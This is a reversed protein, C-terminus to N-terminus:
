WGRDSAPRSGPGGEAPLGGAGLNGRDLPPPPEAEVFVEGYRTLLRLPPGAGVAPADYYAVYRYEGPPILGCAQALDVRLNRVEGPSLTIPEGRAPGPAPEQGCARDAHPGTYLVVGARRPDPEEVQVSRDTANEVALGLVRQEGTWRVVGPTWLRLAPDAPLPRAPGHAV